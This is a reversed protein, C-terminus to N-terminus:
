RSADGTPMVAAEGSRPGVPLLRLERLSPNPGRQSVRHSDRQEPVGGQRVVRVSDVVVKRVCRSYLPVWAEDYVPGQRRRQDNTTEKAFSGACMEFAELERRPRRHERVLLHMDTAPGTLTIASSSATM